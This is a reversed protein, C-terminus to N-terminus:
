AVAMSEPNPFEEENTWDGTAVERERVEVEVDVTPAHAVFDAIADEVDPDISVVRTLDLVLHTGDEIEQFAHIIRGRNLFTVEESFLLELRPRGSEDTSKKAHFPLQYNRYLIFFAAVALGIGIGMLLDTFVIAAITVTFPIFQNAGKAWMERFLEIRALKYGIVLLIAALCALPIQNMLKPFVLVAVLLFLGHVFASLKTKAGSTINASSRVIVQTVPLGGFLGSVLNGLGQARLEQSSPTVRKEPDLKDTAEVCLLTEISAVIAITVATKYVDLNTWASFDPFIVLAAMGDLSEAVPLSVMHDASIALSPAVRAFVFALTTGTLVAVLPGPVLGVRNKIFPQQWLILIAMSVAAVIAAGLSVGDLMHFLQSFTNHGDRETFGLSGVYAEDYGLAHPIQKLILIIGIAALMGKIVSSPFYYAIIGARAVGLLFQLVGALVVALLFIRFDGLSEIASLVIVALGAAPGSVGLASGSFTTVVLGGAIGAVVGAFLPAGSALAIGLCLPLAVLFVVIGSPGDRKLHELSFGMM